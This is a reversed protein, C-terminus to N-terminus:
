SHKGKYRMRPLLVAAVISVIALFGLLPILPARQGGTQPLTMDALPPPYEEFVWEQIPEEWHWEGLPVGDENIEIYVGNEGPVIGNGWEIPAPPRAPDNGGPAPPIEPETVAPEEPQTGPSSEPPAAPEPDPASIGTGDETISEGKDEDEDEGGGNEDEGDGGGAAANSVTLTQAGSEVTLRGAGYGSGSFAPDTGYGAPIDTEAVEYVGTPLAQTHTWDPTSLTFTFSAGGELPTLTVTFTGSAPI